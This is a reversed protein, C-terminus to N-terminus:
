AAVIEAGFLTGQSVKKSKRSARTKKAKIVKEATLDVTHCEAIIVAKGNRKGALTYDGNVTEAKEVESPEVVEAVELRAAETEVAAAKKSKRSSKKKMKAAVKAPAVEAALALPEAAASVKVGDSLAATGDISTIAAARAITMFDVDTVGEFLRRFAYAVKIALSEVGIGEDEPRNRGINARFKGPAGDFAWIARTIYTMDTIDGDNDYSAVSVVWGGNEVEIYDLGFGGCQVANEIASRMDANLTLGCEKAAARGADTIRAKNVKMDTRINEDM